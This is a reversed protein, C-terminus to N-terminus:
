PRPISNFQGPLRLGCVAGERCDPTLAAQSLAAGYLMAAGLLAGYVARSVAGLPSRRAWLWWPPMALALLWSTSLSVDYGGAVQGVITAVALHPVFTAWTM